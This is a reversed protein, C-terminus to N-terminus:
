SLTLAQQIGSLTWQVEKCTLSRHCTLAQFRDQDKVLLYSTHKLPQDPRMKMPLDPVHIHLLCPHKFLVKSSNFGPDQQKIIQQLEDNSGLNHAKIALSCSSLNVHQETM